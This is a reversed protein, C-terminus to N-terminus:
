TPSVVPVQKGFHAMVDNAHIIIRFFVYEEIRPWGWKRAWAPLARSFVYGHPPQFKGRGDGSGNRFAFDDEDGHGRRGIRITGHVQGVNFFHGPFDGLRELWFHSVLDNHVFGGYGDFGPFFDALGDLVIRPRINLEVNDGIWFEQPFSAGHVVQQVGVANDNSGVRFLGHVDDLANVLGNM